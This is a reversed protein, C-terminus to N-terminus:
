AAPKAPAQTWRLAELPREMLPSRSARGPTHFSHCTECSTGGTLEKAVQPKAAHCKECAAKTPMLVDGAQASTKAAHCDGCKAAPAHQANFENHAAIAHNFDGKPMYSSNLKVRHVDPQGAAPVGVEHCGFCVGGRSIAARYAAM